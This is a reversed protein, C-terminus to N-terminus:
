LFGTKQPSELLSVLVQHIIHVYKYQYYITDTPFEALVSHYSTPLYEYIILFEVYLVIINMM